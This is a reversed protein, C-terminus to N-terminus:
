FRSSGARHARLENALQRMKITRFAAAVQTLLWRLEGKRLFGGDFGLEDYRRAVEPDSTFLYFLTVQGIPVARRLVPLVQGGDAGPMHFDVVVLEIGHIHQLAAAGDAATVVQYGHAALDARVRERVVPSDDLVLVRGAHNM